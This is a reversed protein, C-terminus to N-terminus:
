PSSIVFNKEYQKFEASDFIEVLYSIPIILSIKGGTKDSITMSQIGILYPQISGVTFTNGRMQPEPSIFVPAGSYGQALDDDLLIFELDTRVINDSITTRWSAIETKKAVPSLLEKVGLNLPFWLICVKTLLEINIDKKIFLDDSIVSHKSPETFEFPHVAIDAKQHYFWKSKPIKEQLEKFTFAKLKGTATNWMIEANESMDRAVHAATVLYLKDTHKVLFGTGSIINLKPITQQTSTDKLWVEYNKDYLRENVIRKEQLYVTTKGLEDITTAYSSSIVFSLCFLIIKRRM